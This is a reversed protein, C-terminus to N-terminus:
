SSAASDPSAPRGSPHRSWALRSAQDRSAVRAPCPSSTSTPRSARAISRGRAFYIGAVRISSRARLVLDFQGAKPYAVSPQVALLEFTPDVAPSTRMTVLPATKVVVPLTASTAAGAVGADGAGSVSPPQEGGAEARAPAPLLAAAGAIVVALARSRMVAM